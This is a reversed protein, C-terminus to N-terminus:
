NELNLLSPAIKAGLFRVFSGNEKFLPGYSLTHPFIILRTGAQLIRSSQCPSIDTVKKGTLSCKMNDTLKRDTLPDNINDPM